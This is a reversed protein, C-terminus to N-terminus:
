SFLEPLSCVWLAQSQGARIAFSSFSSEPTGIITSAGTLLVLDAVAHAASTQRYHNSFEGTFTVAQGGYLQQFETRATKDDCCLFFPKGPELQEDLMVSYDNTVPFRQDPRLRQWRRVVDTRRVHVGLYDPGLQSRLDDLTASLRYQRVLIDLLRHQYRRYHSYFDAEEVGLPRLCRRYVYEATVPNSLVLSREPRHAYRQMITDLRSHGIAATSPDLVPSGQFHQNPFWNWYLPVDTMESCVLLACLVRLRNCLGGSRLVLLIQECNRIRGPMHRWGHCRGITGALRGLVRGVAHDPPVNNEDLRLTSTDWYSELTGALEICTDSEVPSRLTDSSKTKCISNVLRDVRTILARISPETHTDLKRGM